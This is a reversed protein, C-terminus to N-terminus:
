AQKEQALWARALQLDLSTTIKINGPSGAVLSPAHGLWEIAQSEDTPERGLELAASLAQRLLGLRFMQPTLARWLGVRSPTEAVHPVLVSAGAGAEVSTSIRKLTDALPAALLGGVPDNGLTALLRDLDARDLCPRAADHVLVWDSEEGQIAALGHRVSDCRRAGGDVRHVRPARSAPLTAFVQDAADLAVVIGQCREDDLFASLAHEIVRRAGLMQYQKPLEGGFRRGSGAAPMVLWYRV